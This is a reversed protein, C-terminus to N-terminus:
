FRRDALPALAAAPGRGSLVWLDEPGSGEGADVVVVVGPPALAGPMRVPAVGRIAAAPVAVGPVADDAPRLELSGEPGRVVDVPRARGVGLRDAPGATFAHVLPRHRRRTAELAVLVGVGLVAAVALLAESESTTVQVGLTVLLGCFFAVWVFRAARAPRLPADTPAVGPHLLARRALLVEREIWRQHYAVQRRFAERYALGLLTAAPVLCVVVAVAGGVRHPTEAFPLVVALLGVFGIMFPLTAVLHGRPGMALISAWERTARRDAAEELDAADRRDWATALDGPEGAPLARAAATRDLDRWHVVAEAERATLVLARRLARGGRWLVLAAAALVLVLALVSDEALDGSVGQLAMLVVLLVALMWATAPAMRRLGWTRRDLETVARDQAILLAERSPYASAPPVETLVDSDVGAAGVSM